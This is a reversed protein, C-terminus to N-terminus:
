EWLDEEVAAVPVRVEAGCVALLSEFTFEKKLFAPFIRFFGNQPQLRFAVL